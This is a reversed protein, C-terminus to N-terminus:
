MVRRNFSDLIHKQMIQVKFCLLPCMIVSITGSSIMENWQFISVKYDINAIPSSDCIARDLKHKTQKFIYFVTRFMERTQHLSGPLYRLYGTRKRLIKCTM